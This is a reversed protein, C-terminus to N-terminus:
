EWIISFTWSSLDAIRGAGGKFIIQVIIIESAVVVDTTVLPVKKELYKDNDGGVWTLTSDGESALILSSPDEGIAVSRWLTQFTMFDAAVDCLAIVRLKATGSPLVPPAEFSLHVTANSPLSADLGVHTKDRHDNAGDRDFNFPSFTFLGNTTIMHVSYPYLPGGPM